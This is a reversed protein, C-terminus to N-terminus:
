FQDLPGGFCDLAVIIMVCEPTNTDFVKGAIRRVSIDRSDAVTTAYLQIPRKKFKEQVERIKSDRKEIESYVGGVSNCFLMHLKSEAPIKSACKTIIESTLDSELNKSEGSLLSTSSCIFDYELIDKPRYLVGANPVGFDKMHQPIKKYDAPSCCGQPLLYPVMEQLSEIFHVLDDDFDLKPSSDSSKLLEMFLHRLFDLYKLPTTGQAHSAVVMATACTAEMDNGDRKKSATSYHPLKGIKLSKYTLEFAQRVSLKEGRSNAFAPVKATGHLCLYLLPEIFVSQFQSSIEWVNESNDLCVRGSPNASLTHIVRDDLKLAALHKSVLGESKENYAFAPLLSAIQGNQHERMQPKHAFIRTAIFDLADNVYRREISTKKLYDAVFQSLLPRGGHVILNEWLGKQPDNSDLGSFVYHPYKQVLYAWVVNDGRSTGEDKFVINVVTSDTCAFCLLQGCARFVNRVGLLVPQEVISRSLEDIVFLMRRVHAKKGFVRTKKLADNIYAKVVEPKMCRVTNQTEDFLHEFVPKQRWQKPNRLHKATCDFASYIFGALYFEEQSIGDKTRIGESHLKRFLLSDRRVCEFFVKTVSDFARYINQRIDDQIGVIYIGGVAMCLALVTQTKGMGSSGDAVFFPDPQSDAKQLLSLVHEELEVFCQMNRNSLISRATSLYKDYAERWAEGVRERIWSIEYGPTDSLTVDRFQSM